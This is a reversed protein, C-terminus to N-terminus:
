RLTLCMLQRTDGFYIVLREGAVLLDYPYRTNTEGPLIGGPFAAIAQPAGSITDISLLEFSEDLAFLNGTPSDLWVAEIILDSVCWNYAGNNLDLRCLGHSTSVILGHPAAFQPPYLETQIFAHEATRWVEARTTSNLAVMGEAATHIELGEAIWLLDGLPQSTIAEEKALPVQILNEGYYVLISDKRLVPIIGVHGFGLTRSWLQYGTGADYATLSTATAAYAAHADALLARVGTQEGYLETRWVAQGTSTSVAAVYERNNEWTNIFLRDGYTAFGEGIAQPTRIWGGSFVSPSTNTIHDPVPPPPKPILQYVAALVLFAIILYGPSRRVKIILKRFSARM